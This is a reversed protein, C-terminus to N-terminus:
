GEASSSPTSSSSAPKPSASEKAGQSDAAEPTAANADPTAANVDPTVANVDPTAANVDPTAANAKVVELLFPDLAATVIQGFTKMLGVHPPEQSGSRQESSGAKTPDQAAAAPTAQAQGLLRSGEKAAHLFVNHLQDM